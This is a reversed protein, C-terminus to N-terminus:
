WFDGWLLFVFSVWIEKRSPAGKSEKASNEFIRPFPLGATRMWDPGLCAALPPTGSGGVMIMAIALASGLRGVAVAAGATGHSDSLTVM